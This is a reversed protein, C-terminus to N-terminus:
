KDCTTVSLQTTPIKPIRVLDDEEHKDEKMEMDQNIADKDCASLVSEEMTKSEERLAPKSIAAAAGFPPPKRPRIANMYDTPKGARQHITM